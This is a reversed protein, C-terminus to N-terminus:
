LGLIQLPSKIPVIGLIIGEVGTFNGQRFEAVMAPDFKIEVGSGDKTVDLGMNNANLDIGGLSDIKQAADDNERGQLVNFIHNQLYRAIDVTPNNDLKRAKAFAYLDMLTSSEIAKRLNSDMKDYERMFSDFFGRRDDESIQSFKKSGYRAVLKQFSPNLRLAPSDWDILVNRILDAAKGDHHNMNLNDIIQLLIGPKPNLEQHSSLEAHVERLIQEDETIYMEDAVRGSFVQFVYASFLRNLEVLNNHEIKRNRAFDLVELFSSGLLFKTANQFVLDEQFLIDLRQRLKGTLQSLTKVDYRAMLKKVPEVDRKDSYYLDILIRVMEDDASWYETNELDYLISVLVAAQESFGLTIFQDKIERLFTLNDELIKRSDSQAYDEGAVINQGGLEIAESRKNSLWRSAQFITIM